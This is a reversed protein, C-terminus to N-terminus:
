DYDDVTDLADDLKIYVIDEIVEYNLRDLRRKITEKARNKIEYAVDDFSNQEEISHFSRTCSGRGCIECGM